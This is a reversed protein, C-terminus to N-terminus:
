WEEKNFKNHGFQIILDINLINLNTPIDCGGFCTGLWIFVKVNSKTNKTIYDVINEAYPKLGDPLQILIRKSNSKQIENVIKELELNYNM